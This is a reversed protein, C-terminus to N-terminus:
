RRSHADCDPVDPIWVRLREARPDEYADGPFAYYEERVVNAADTGMPLPRLVPLTETHKLDRM